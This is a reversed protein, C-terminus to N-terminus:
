FSSFFYAKASSFSPPVVQSTWNTGDSILVNGATGPSSLGTGGSTTNLPSAPFTVGTSNVRLKTSGGSQLELVGSADATVIYGGLVTDANITTPM